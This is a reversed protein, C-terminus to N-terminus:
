IRLRRRMEREMELVDAPGFRYDDKGYNARPYSKDVLSGVLADIGIDTVLGNARSNRRREVLGVVQTVAEERTMQAEM